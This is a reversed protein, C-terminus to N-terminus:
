VGTIMWNSAPVCSELEAALFVVEVATDRATTKHQAIDSRVVPEHRDEAEEPM